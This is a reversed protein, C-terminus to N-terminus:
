RQLIMRKEFPILNMIEDFTPSDKEGLYELILNKRNGEALEHSYIGRGFVNFLAEQYRDLTVCLRDQFLQLRVIQEHTWEEWINSEYFKIAQERTMQEM